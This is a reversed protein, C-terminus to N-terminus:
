EGKNWRKGYKERLDLFTAVDYIAGAATVGVIAPAFREAITPSGELRRRMAMRSVPREEIDSELEALDSLSAIGRPHVEAWDRM